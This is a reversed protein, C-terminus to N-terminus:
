LDEAGVVARHEFGERREVGFPLGPEGAVQGVQELAEIRASGFCQGHGALIELHDGGATSMSLVSTHPPSARWVRPYVFFGGVSLSLPLNSPSKATVRYLALPERSVEKPPPRPMTNM